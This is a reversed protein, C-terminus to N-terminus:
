LREAAKEIYSHAFDADEKSLTLHPRLRVSKNGCKLVLMNESLLEMIKDREPESSLDFAIMLGRGRVNSIGDVTVLRELLYEGVTKANEVLNDKEIADAIHCFRVMDVINGGWTSNIRSSVNFVNDSVNNIRDTCCFGCVQTKKGFCIMDPMVGSFHKYGWMKGTLGLGTQVEDFILM